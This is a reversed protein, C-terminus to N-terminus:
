NGFFSDITGKAEKLDSVVKINPFKRYDLSQRYAYELINKTTWKRARSLDGPSLELPSKKSVKAMELFQRYGLTMWLLEESVAGKQSEHYLKKFEKYLRGKRFMISVNKGVAEKLEKKGIATGLVLVNLPIMKRKEKEGKKWDQLVCLLHLTSGGVLIPLNDRKQIEDIKDRVLKQFEFLDLKKKPPVTGFLHTKTKKLLPEIPQSQSVNFGDYIKRSDVNVIESDIRHKGWIYKSLDFALGLKNSTTIGYIAIIKDM